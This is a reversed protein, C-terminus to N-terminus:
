LTMRPGTLKHQLQRHCDWCKRDKNMMRDVTAAHCRICNDQVFEQGHESIEIREPVNGSYFFLVDKMGDISKWTYYWAVNDHPLHCSVCQERRHAGQHSWAEYESQMVHCSACFEPTETKAMLHPPGFALFLGLAALVVGAVLLYKLKLFGKLAM